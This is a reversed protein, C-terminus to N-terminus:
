QYTQRPPMAATGHSQPCHRQKRSPKRAIGHLPPEVDLGHMETCSPVCTDRTLALGHLTALSSNRSVGHLASIAQGQATGTRAVFPGHNSFTCHLCDRSIYIYIYVDYINRGVSLISIYFSFLSSIRSRYRPLRHRPSVRPLKHRPTTTDGDGGGNDQHQKCVRLAFALDSYRCGQSAQVCGEQHRKRRKTVSPSAQHRKSYAGTRRKTVSAVSPCLSHQPIGTVFTTICVRIVSLKM